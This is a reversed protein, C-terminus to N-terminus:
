EIVDRRGRALATYNLEEIRIRAGIDHGCCMAGPREGAPLYSGRSLRHRRLLSPAVVNDSLAGLRATVHAAALAEIM